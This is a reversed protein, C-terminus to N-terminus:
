KTYLSEVFPKMTTVVEKSGTGEIMAMMLYSNNDADAAMLFGNTTGDVGQKAKLEATGTKAAISHGSLKLGHATGESNDVVQTLAQKLTNATSAKLVQTTGTTKNLLLSPSQMKGGNMVSTYAVAQQIPSMLIQGQGYSTDAFLVEKDLKGSNSIQPVNMTLPLKNTQKFFPAIGKLFASKGMKLATQAFWINDSHLLAQTLNEPAVDDVRTVKYDGWSSDKQWKLGKISKTTSTTITGNDLAVGATLMKFTSGPAYRQTYRSIFPHDADNAYKDYDSQSIGSVFKNPDYSPTSVLTLLEGTQPNITVVAGKKGKLQNYAKTQLKSDITLQINQGNQKKRSILTTVKGSGAVITLEGGAQGALQKNYTKELGAKGIIDGTHYTANKKIDDATVEGVYGILQASAEGTAYTRQTVTQYTVGTLTPNDTVVKIPVFNDDTVWSQNLLTKLSSVDVDFAASIKKLNNALTTGTGLKGRIMGAEAATGEEALAKGNRDLIKGRTAAQTTLQVTAKGSLQPLIM